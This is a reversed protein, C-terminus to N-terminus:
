QVSLAYKPDTITGRVQLIYPETIKFTVHQKMKIDINVNGKFDVFSEKPSSLLSFESRKGESFANKLEELYMKGGQLRCTLEGSIPVFLGLDLGLNKLLEKPITFLSNTKPEVNTFHATGKGTFSAIDSARGKVDFFDVHRLVFPKVASATKYKNKLRSPHFNQVKIHPVHVMWEGQYKEMKIQKVFLKGAPDEINTKRLFIRDKKWELTADCQAIKYGMFDFDKGLIKGSFDLNPSFKWEGELGLGKGLGLKQLQLFPGKPLLGQMGGVDFYLSGLLSFEPLDGQKLDVHVGLMSGKFSKCFFDQGRKELEIQVEEKKGHPQLVLSVTPNDRFLVKGKADVFLKDYVMKNEFSLEESTYKWALDKIEVPLSTLQLKGQKCKGQVQLRQSSFQALMEGELFGNWSVQKLLSEFDPKKQLFEKLYPCFSFESLDVAWESLDLAASFNHVALMGLNKNEKQNEIGFLGEEFKIGETPSLSFSLEKKTKVLLEGTRKELFSAHILGTGEWFDGTKPFSVEVEGVCQFIGSIPSAKTTYFTGNQILVHAKETKKDFIASGKITMQENAMELVPFSFIDEKKQISAKLFLDDCQMREIVYSDGTKCLSLSFCKRPVELFTLNEASSSVRWTKSSGQYSIETYLDGTAVLATKIKEYSSIEGIDKLFSAIEPLKTLSVIPQMKFSQLQLSPSLKCTSIECPVGFFHTKEKEFFVAIENKKQEIKGVIQTIEKEGQRLKAAFQGNQSAGDLVCKEIELDYVSSDKVRAEAQFEQLSFKQMKSDYFIKGKTKSLTLSSGIKYEGTGCLMQVSYDKGKGLVVGRGTIQKGSFVGQSGEIQMDHLPVEVVMNQTEFFYELHAFEDFTGSSFQNSGLFPIYATHEADKWTIERGGVYMDLRQPTFSGVLFFNGKLESSPVMAKLTPYFTEASIFNTHFSGKELRSENWVKKSFLEQVSIKETLALSFDLIESSSMEESGLSITGIVKKNETELRAESTLAMKEQKPIYQTAKPCFISTLHTLVSYSTDVHAQLTWDKGTSEVSFLAQSEGIKGQFTSPLIKEKEMEMHFFVDEVREVKKGKSYLDIAGKDSTMKASLVHWDEGNRAFSLDGKIETFSFLHETEPFCFKTNELCLDTIQISKSNGNEIFVESKGRAFGETVDLYKGLLPQQLIDELLLVHDASCNVFNSTLRYEKNGTSILSATLELTEQKRDHLSLNMDLCFVEESTLRGSGQMYFPSENQKTLLIGQMELSPERDFSTSFELNFDKVGINKALLPQQLSIEGERIVLSSIAKKWFPSVERKSEPLSFDFRFGSARAHFGLAQNDMCLSRVDMQAHMEKIGIKRDLLCAGSLEVEGEMKEWSSAISPVFFSSIEWLRSAETKELKYRLSFAKKQPQVELFLQPHQANKESSFLMKTIHDEETKSSFYLPAIQTSSTKKEFFIEGQEAEWYASFRKGMWVPLLLPGDSTGEKVTVQPHNAMLYMGVHLDLPRLCFSLSVKPINLSFRESDVRVGQLSIGERDWKLNQYSIKNKIFFHKCTEAVTFRLLPERFLILCLIALPILLWKKKRKLSSSEGLRKNMKSSM